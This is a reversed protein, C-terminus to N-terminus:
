ENIVDANMSALLESYVNEVERERVCVVIYNVFVKLVETGVGLDQEFKGKKEITVVM